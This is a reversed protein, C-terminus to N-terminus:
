NCFKKCKKNCRLTFCILDKEIATYNAVLDRLYYSYAGSSEWYAQTLTSNERLKSGSNTEEPESFSVLGGAWFKRDAVLSRRSRPVM